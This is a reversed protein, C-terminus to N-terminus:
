EDPTVASWGFYDRFDSFCTECIWAEDTPSRVARSGTQSFSTMGEVPQVRRSRNTYGHVYGERLGDQPPEAFKEWCLACHEHDWDPAPATFIRRELTARRMWEEERTELRWDLGEPV